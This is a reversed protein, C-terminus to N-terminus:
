NSLISNLVLMGAMDGSTVIACRVGATPGFASTQTKSTLMAEPAEKAVQTPAVGQLAQLFQLYQLCQACSPPVHPTQLPDAYNESTPRWNLRSSPDGPLIEAGFTFFSLRV